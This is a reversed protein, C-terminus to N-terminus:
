RKMPLFAMKQMSILWQQVEPDGLLSEIAAQDFPHGNNSTGEDFHVILSGLKVLLAVNPTLPDPNDNM